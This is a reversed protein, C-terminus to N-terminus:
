CYRWLFKVREETTELNPCVLFRGLKAGDIVGGKWSGYDGMSFTDQFSCVGGLHSVLLFCYGDDTTCIFCSILNVLLWLSNPYWPRKFVAEFKKAGREDSSLLELFPVLWEPDAIWDLIKFQIRRKSNDKAWLAEKIPSLSSM